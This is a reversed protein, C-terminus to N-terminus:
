ENENGEEDYYGKEDFSIYCNDMLQLVAGKIIDRSKLPYKYDESKEDIIKKAYDTYKNIWVDIENESLIKKNDIVLECQKENAAAFVRYLLASKRKHSLRDIESTAAALKRSLVGIKRKNYEPSVDNIKNKLNRYDEIALEDYSSYLPDFDEIILESYFSLNLDALNYNTIMNKITELPIININRYAFDEYTNEYYIGLLIVVNDKKIYAACGSMGELLQIASKKFTSIEKLVELRILNNASNDYKCKLKCSKIIQERAIKPYGYLYINGSYEELEENNTFSFLSVLNSKKVKIIAIDLTDNKFARMTSFTNNSFIISEPKDKYNKLCHKATLVYDYETSKSSVFVGSGEEGNCEIMISYKEINYIEKM